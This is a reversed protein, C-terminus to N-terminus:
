YKTHSAHRGPSHPRAHFRTRPRWLHMTKSLGQTHDSCLPCHMHYTGVTSSVGMEGFAEPNEGYSSSSVCEPCRLSLSQGPRSEFLMIGLVPVLVATDPLTTWLCTCVRCAVSLAVASTRVLNLNEAPLLPNNRILRRIPM